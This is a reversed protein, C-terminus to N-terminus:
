LPLEQERDRNAINTRAVPNAALRDAEIPKGSIECIGYTGNAIKELARRYNRYRTELETVIGNRVEWEEAADADTNEDAHELTESIPLAFWDSTQPDQTAITSLETIVEALEVELRDKITENTM